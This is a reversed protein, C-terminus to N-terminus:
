PVANQPRYLSQGGVAPGWQLTGAGSDLTLATVLQAGSSTDHAGACGNSDFYSDPSTVTPPLLFELMGGQVQYRGLEIGPTDCSVTTTGYFFSTDGLPDILVYRGDPLFFFAPSTLALANDKAWTGGIGTAADALRSLRHSATTVLRSGSSDTQLALQTLVLDGGDLSLQLPANVTDVASFGRTGNSDQSVSASVQGNSPDWALTGRELGPQGGSTFMAAAGADGDAIATMLYGGDDRFRFVQLQGDVNGYYQGALSALFQAKFHALANAPTVATTGVTAVLGTFATSASFNAPTDTLLTTLTDALTADQLATIAADPIAIGNGPNGDADLSQLLVLLNTVANQRQVPDTIATFGAILQLPTVTMTSGSGTVVGIPLVGLKFVITEGPRYRFQGGATTIGTLSGSTLYEVGQIPADTLVGTSTSSGPSSSGGGCATLLALSAAAALHRFSLRARADM